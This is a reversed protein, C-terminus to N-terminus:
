GKESPVVSAPVTGRSAQEFVILIDRKLQRHNDIGGLFKFLELNLPLRLAPESDPLSRPASETTQYHDPKSYVTWIQIDAM